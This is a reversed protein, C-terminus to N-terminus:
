DGKSARLPDTGAKRGAEPYQRVTRPEQVQLHMVGIETQIKAHRERQTDKGRVLVGTMPSLGVGIGDSRM